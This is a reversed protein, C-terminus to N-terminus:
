LNNLLNFKITRPESQGNATQIICTLFADADVVATGNATISLLVSTGTDSIFTVDVNSSSSNSSTLITDAGIENLWDTWDFEVRKISHTIDLDITLGKRWKIISM